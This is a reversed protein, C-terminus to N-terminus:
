NNSEVTEGVDGGSEDADDGQGDNNLRKLLTMTSIASGMVSGDDLLVLSKVTRNLTADIYSGNTKANKMYRKGCATDPKIISIIRNACAINGMGVHIFKLPSM